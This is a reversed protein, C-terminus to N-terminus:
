LKGDDPRGSCPKGGGCGGSGGSPSDNKAKLSNVCFVEVCPSVVSQLCAQCLVSEFRVTALRLLWWREALVLEVNEVAVAACAM